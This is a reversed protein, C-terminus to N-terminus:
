HRAKDTYMAEDARAILEDATSAAGPRAVGISISVVVSEDDAVEVPEAVVRRLRAVIMDLEADDTQDECLVLFEDGGLRAVTDSGRVSRRMREAVTLLVGDGARHGYRDNVPKFGDLDCFLVAPSSPHRDARRLAHELREHFLARNPLGTLSDHSARHLLEQESEIRATLDRIVGAIEVLDGDDDTQLSCRLEVWRTAGDARRVELEVPEDGLEVGLRALKELTPEDLLLDLLEPDDYFRDLPYGTLTAAAPNVYGFGPEPRLRYRFIMDPAAEALTRFQRDSLDLSAEVEARATEDRLSLVVGGVAAHDLLNTAHATVHRWTGDVARLRIPLPGAAGAGDFVHTLAGVAADRDDPHVLDVASTGLLSGSAHGLLLQAAPTAFRLNGDDGLVVLAETTAALLAALADASWRGDVEQWWAEDGLVDNM